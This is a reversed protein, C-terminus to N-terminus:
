KIERKDTGVSFHDIVGAIVCDIVVNDDELLQQGAGGDTNILVIDGIGADAADACIFEDSLPNGDFDIHEAIMLKLGSHSEDKVTSVVNGVVRALIM